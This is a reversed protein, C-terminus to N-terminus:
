DTEGVEERALQQSVKLSIRSLVPKELGPYERRLHLAV